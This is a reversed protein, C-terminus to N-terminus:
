VTKKGIGRTVHMARQEMELYPNVCWRPDSDKGIRVDKRSHPFPNILIQCAESLLNIRHDPHPRQTSSPVLSPRDVNKPATQFEGTGV